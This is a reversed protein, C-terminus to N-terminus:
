THDIGSVSGDGVAPGTNRVIIRTGRTPPPGSYGSVATGNGAGVAPGTNEVILVGQGDGRVLRALRRLVEM